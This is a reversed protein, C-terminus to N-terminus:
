CRSTPSSRRSTRAHSRASSSRGSRTTGASRACCTWWCRISGRGGGSPARRGHGGRRRVHQRVGRGDAGPRRDPRADPDGRRPSRAAHGPRGLARRALPDRGPDDATFGLLAAIEAGRDCSTQTMERGAGQEKAGLTAVRMVRAMPSAEPVAHRLAYALSPLPSTWDTLRHDRKLRRDDAGFLSCLRAANSSCGLDKLLLAYFLPGRQAPPLAAGQAIRMGILCTRVSHGEPQGETIDLAYSLASLIESLRLDAATTASYQAFTTM